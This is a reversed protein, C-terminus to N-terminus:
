GADDLRGDEKFKAICLDDGTLAEHADPHGTAHPLFPPDYVNLIGVVPTELNELTHQLARRKEVIDGNWHTMASAQKVAAILVRTLDYGHVFGTPASLESLTGEQLGARNLAETLIESGEIEKRFGCTQLVSIQMDSRVDHPVLNEFGGGTIGWHSLLKFTPLRDHLANALLAGNNWNALMIGCTAGSRIINEALSNATANGITTAFFQVLAPKMQRKELATTLTAHNARGWGTEVLILAVKECAIADVAEHVLFEGSQTDDVSLRFIWNSQEPAGRTIPGAASWPLLTLIENENIFDRYSLYPPSHLGGFIVLADDSALYQEMTRKSRKVNGRHDKPVVVVDLGGLQFGVEDLATNIGLEIAEAAASSISYDADVYIKLPEARLGSGFLFLLCCFAKPWIFRPM